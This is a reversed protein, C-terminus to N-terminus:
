VGKPRGRAHRPTLYSTGFLWTGMPRTAKCCFDRRRSVWRAIRTALRRVGVLPQNGFNASLPPRPSANGCAAVSDGEGRTGRGTSRRGLLMTMLRGGTSNAGSVSRDSIFLHWPLQYPRIRGPGVHELAKICAALEAGNAVEADISKQLQGANYAMVINTM